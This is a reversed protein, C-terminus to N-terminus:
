KPRAMNSLGNPATLDRYLLNRGILGAVTSSMQELTGSERMNHKAVFEQIYRDMHKPSLKHFTGKYARKLMSWFTEIGNTHAKGNVYEGISHKVTEDTFPLSTYATADDTYVEATSDTHRIIHSQLTLTDTYEVPQARVKNSERDKIGTVAIKGVAGRGKLTKRKKSSM